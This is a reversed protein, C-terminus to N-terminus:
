GDMRVYMHVHLYVSKETNKLWACIYIYIYMYVCMCRFMFTRIYRYARSRTENLQKNMQM